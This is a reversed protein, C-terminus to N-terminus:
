SATLHTRGTMAWHEACINGYQCGPCTAPNVIALRGDREEWCSFCQRCLAKVVDTVYVPFLETAGCTPCREPIRDTAM